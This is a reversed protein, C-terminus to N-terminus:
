KLIESMKAVTAADLKFLAAVIKEVEEGSVPDVDLKSKIAEALFDKDKLTERFARRLLQVRDKPTGPPLAYPRTIAATDHIGAQILKRAEETKALEIAVPVKPLDSIAKPVAQLVINVNGADLGQRWMVKISEWAWCSGDIEGSEAALKIPATGKYGTVLQIPLGLAAKLLKASDDNTTGPASGGLKVPSKASMWADVSTIGSAKTLACVVHDKVPVGIWEFKRGDFEIGPGGYLQQSVLNGIFNGITLGDPKAGKYVMNAAVLSGAGTVNDVVVAPNGPIYKSIHRGMIRSYTDFGGGAPFGVVIRITKGAYFDQAYSVYGPSWMSTLVIEILGVYFIIKRM